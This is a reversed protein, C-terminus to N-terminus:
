KVQIEPKVFRVPSASGILQDATLSAGLNLRQLVGFGLSSMIGGGSFFRTRALFGYYDLIGATPVDILDTDPLLVTEMKGNGSSKATKGDCFAPVSGLLLTLAVTFIKRM